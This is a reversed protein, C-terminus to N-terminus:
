VVHERLFALSREFALEADAASFSDRDECNFGHAAGPYVHVVADPVSQRITEVDEMPISRDKEGFHYMIPCQPKRDLNRAVAAGYYSVAAAIPLESAVVHAASGGWCYGVVGVSLGSHTEAAAAEVDRVVQPWQLQRMTARGNDIDKYDFVINRGVRDFMAPAIADFGAEAYRDVVRRIHATLGFIEQIVVIGGSSPGVAPARYADLEHGDAAKLRTMEGM